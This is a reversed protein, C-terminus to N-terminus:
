HFILARAGSRQPKHSRKGQRKANILQRDRQRVEAAAGSLLSM